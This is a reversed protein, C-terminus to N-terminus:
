FCHLIQRSQMFEPRLRKEQGRLNETFVAFQRRINEETEKLFM